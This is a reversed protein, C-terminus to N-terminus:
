RTATHGHRAAHRDDDGGDRAPDNNAKAGCTTCAWEQWRSAETYGEALSYTHLSNGKLALAIKEGGDQAPKTLKVITKIATM